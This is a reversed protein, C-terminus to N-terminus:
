SFLPMALFMMKKFIMSNLGDPMGMLSEAM